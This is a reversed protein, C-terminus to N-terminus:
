LQVVVLALPLTLSHRPLPLRQAARPNLPQVHGKTVKPGANVVLQAPSSRRPM